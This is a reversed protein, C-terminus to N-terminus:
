SNEGFFTTSNRPLTPQWSSAMTLAVSDERGVCGQKDGDEIIDRGERM